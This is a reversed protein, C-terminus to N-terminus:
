LPAAEWTYPYKQLTELSPQGSLAYAGEKVAECQAESLSCVLPPDYNSKQPAQEEEKDSTDSATSSSDTSTDATGSAHSPPPVPDKTVAPGM